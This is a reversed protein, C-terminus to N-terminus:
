NGSKPLPWNKTLAEISIQRLQTKTLGFEQAVEAKYTETLQNSLEAQKSLQSGALDLPYGPKRPDPMPYTREAEAQARDEARVSAQFIERRKSESLGFKLEPEAGIQSLLDTRINTDIKANAGLRRMTAIWQGMGSTFHERSSYLYVVIHTPKGGHNTFSRITLADNFLKQLLIKASAETIQGEVVAHITAMTKIPKDYLESHLIEHAPVTQQRAPPPLPSPTAGVSEVKSLEPESPIETRYWPWAVLAVFILVLCGIAVKAVISITKKGSAEAHHHGYLSEVANQAAESIQKPAAVSVESPVAIIQGCYNCKGRRGAYQEPIRLSQRCGPCEMSIM